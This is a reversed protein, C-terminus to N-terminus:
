VFSALHYITGKACDLITDKERETLTVSNLAEFFENAHDVDAVGHHKLTRVAKDDLDAAKMITDLTKQSIPFTELAAIFGFIAVPHIHLVRYYVSGILNIIADLPKKQLTLERDIGMHELDELIWEDHFMEEEIHHEIYQQLPLLRADDRKKFEEVAAQMVPCSAKVSHYLDQLYEIYQTRTLNENFTQKANQALMPSLLHLQTRLTINFGSQAPNDSLTSDPM